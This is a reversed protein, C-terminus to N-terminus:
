VLLSLMVQPQFWLSQHWETLVFPDILIWLSYFLLSESLFLPLQQLSYAWVSFIHLLHVPGLYTLLFPLFHLLQFVRTHSLAYEFELLGQNLISGISIVLWQWRRSHDCTPKISMVPVRIFLAWQINLFSKLRLPLQVGFYSPPHTFETVISINILM